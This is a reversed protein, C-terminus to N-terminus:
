RGLERYQPNLDRWNGYMGIFNSSGFGNINDFKLYNKGENYEVISQIDDSTLTVQYELNDYTNEFKNGNEERWFTWNSGEVRGNPFVESLSIPRYYFRYGTPLPQPTTLDKWPIDPDDPNSPGPCEYFDCYSSVGCAYDARWTIGNLTSLNGSDMLAQMPFFGSYKMPVFYKKGEQLYENNNYDTDNDSYVVKATKKNIYANNPIYYYRTVVETNAKLVKKINGDINKEELANDLAADNNPDEEWHGINDQYGGNEDNSDPLRVKPLDTEVNLVRPSVADAIQEEISDEIDDGIDYIYTSNPNNYNDILYKPVEYFDGVGGLNYNLYPDNGDSSYSLLNNKTCNGNSDGRSIWLNIMPLEDKSCGYINYYEGYREIGSYYANFSIGGAIMCQNKIRNYEDIDYDNISSSNLKLVYYKVPRYTEINGNNDYVVDNNDSKIGLLEWSLKNEYVIGAEGDLENVYGTTNFGTGSNVTKVNEVGNAAADGLYKIEGHQHIIIQAIVTAELKFMETEDYPVCLKGTPYDEPMTLRVQVPIEM